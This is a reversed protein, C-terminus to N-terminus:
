NAEFGKAQLTKKEAGLPHYPTNTNGGEISIDELEGTAMPAALVATPLMGM